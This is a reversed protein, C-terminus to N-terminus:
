VLVHWQLSLSKEIQLDFYKILNYLHIHCGRLYELILYIDM